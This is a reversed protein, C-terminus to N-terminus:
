PEYRGGLHEALFKEARRYFDLRNAPRSLGHGEDLYEVYEVLKGAQRLTEVMQRTEAKDVRPDNAGQVILLPKTIRDVMFLPSRSRLFEADKEPHGVRDFYMPEVPKWYAPTTKMYTILNSPGAIDVACAFVDPTAALGVLAAYGGYGEGYIAVRGPDAIGKKVAWHVADVLDDQMKGGWERNGANLFEKGYGASGRYNPALVAYGRNALWQMEWCCGWWIRSWPEGNVVLVMPLNEAPIGPPNTLYGHITLGDRAQYEIPEMPALRVGEMAKRRTFLFTGQKTRRDYIYYHIPEDSALFYVLWTQDAHDRNNIGFDGPHIRQIAAIDQAISEDLVKWFKRDKSFCVAQLTGDRPHVFINAVEAEDDYAVVQETGSELDISRIQGINAKSSSIIYMGKGDPTFGIPGSTCTDEAEWSVLDRWPSKVTDRVQLVLRGDATAKVAARVRFDRDAVWGISGEDNLVELTLRGTTLDCRYVDRLERKRKNMAVLVENPFRQNAGVVHAQVGKFPTLDRQRGTKLDVAHVHQDEDGNKAPYYLIHENDEAWLFYSIGQKRDKTVPHDDAQGITRVWVNPVGEDPALYALRKGDPSIQPIKKDPDGFIANRPILPPLEARTGAASWILGAGAACLMIRLKM